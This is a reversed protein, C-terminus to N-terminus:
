VANRGSAYGGPRCHTETRVVSCKFVANSKETKGKTFARADFEADSLTALTNARVHVEACCKHTDICVQQTLAHEHTHLYKAQVPHLNQETSGVPTLLAVRNFAALPVAAASSRTLFAQALTKSVGAAISPVVGRLLSVMSSGGRGEDYIFTTASAPNYPSAPSNLAALLSASAGSNVILAANYSGTDVLHITEDFSTTNSLVTATFPNIPSQAATLIANGIMGGDLDLVAFNINKYNDKPNWGVGFFLCLLLPLICLLIATGKAITKLSSIVVARVSPDTLSIQGYKSRQSCDNSVAFVAGTEGGQRILEKGQEYKESSPARHV